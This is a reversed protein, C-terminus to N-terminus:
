AAGLKKNAKMSVVVGVAQPQFIDLQARVFLSKYFDDCAHGCVCLFLFTHLCGFGHVIANDVLPQSVAASGAGREVYFHFSLRASTLVLARGFTVSYWGVRQRRSSDSHEARSGTTTTGM